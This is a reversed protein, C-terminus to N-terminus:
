STKPNTVVAVDSPVTVGSIGAIFTPQQAGLKGIRIVGVITLAARSPAFITTPYDNAAATLLGIEIAPKVNPQEISFSERWSYSRSDRV